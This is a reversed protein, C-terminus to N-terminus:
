TRNGPKPVEEPQPPRVLHIRDASKAGFERYNQRAEILSMRNAGGEMRPNDFQLSDDEWYCVPCIYFTGPPEEPLTFCGCCPCAFNTSPM